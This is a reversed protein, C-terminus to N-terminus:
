GLVRKKELKLNERVNAFSQYRVFKGDKWVTKLESAEEQEPTAKQILFYEDTDDKQVALRGTASKKSAGTKPDKMINLAKGAIQVWTAKMASGLSDRTTGGGMGGQFFFSGAGFVINDSAFGKEAMRAFIDDAREMFISDGYIAGLHSDITKFQKANVTGGFEDWLLEIVGKEEPTVGAGFERVTGCLIDAPDGSDPRIVLKGDRALIESKLTPLINTLVNWLDYTDSVVSIIGTPYLKLLRRYTELENEEATGACMVSHETANVSGGIFGNDGAYLYDVYELTQINDTGTFSLLHGMGSMAASVSSTQGRFSFDHWQWDIFDTNGGTREAWDEIFKRVYLSKTGSVSSFWTSASLITEIYNTLWFFEPDTNEVTLIPVQLPALTGEKLARFHLPLYGKRHLARIHDSGIENPGNFRFMAAEYLKAVEDEDAAFFPEFADMIYNQIFAQLGFVVAHDIGKMRSDRNTYNSYVYETGEPYQRRHDLKYSDTELLAAIPSLKM